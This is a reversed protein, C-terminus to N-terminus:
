SLHKEVEKLALIMQNHVAKRKYRVIVVAKQQDICAHRRQLRVKRARLDRRLASDSGTLLTDTGSIDLIDSLGSTM